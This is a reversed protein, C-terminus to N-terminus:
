PSHEQSPSKVMTGITAIMAPGPTTEPDPFVFIAHATSPIGGAKAQSGKLEGQAAATYGILSSGHTWPSPQGLHFQDGVRGAQSFAIFAAKTEEPANWELMGGPSSFASHPSPM